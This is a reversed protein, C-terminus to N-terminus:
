VTEYEYEKLEEMTACAPCKEIEAITEKILGATDGFWEEGCNECYYDQESVQIQYTTGDEWPVTSIFYGLRNVFHYDNWIYSGGDDGDGYTWIYHRDTAQVYELEEGYTEFMIGNGNEDQFSANSDIPNTQPKFITEWTEMDLEIFKDM